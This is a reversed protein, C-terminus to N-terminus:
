LPFYVTSLFSSVASHVLVFSVSPSMRPAEWISFETLFDLVNNCLTLILMHIILPLLRVIKCTVLHVDFTTRLLSTLTQKLFNKFVGISCFSSEPVSKCIFNWLKLMGLLFQLKFHLPEGM